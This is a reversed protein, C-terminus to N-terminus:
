RSENRKNMYSVSLGAARELGCMSLKRNRTRFGLQERCGLGRGAPSSSECVSWRDNWDEGRVDTVAEPECQSCLLAASHILAFLIQYCGCGQDLICVTVPTEQKWTQSSGASRRM